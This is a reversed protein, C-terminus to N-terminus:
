RTVSRSLARFARLWRWQVNEAADLHRIVVQEEEITRRAIYAANGAIDPQANIQKLRKAIEFTDGPFLQRRTREHASAISVSSAIAATPRTSDYPTV